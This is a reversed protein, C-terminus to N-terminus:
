NLRGFHLWWLNLIQQSKLQFDALQQTWSLALSEPSLETECKPPSHNVLNNFCKVRGCFSTSYLKWNWPIRKRKCSASATICFQVVKCLVVKGRRLWLAKIVLFIFWQVAGVRVVHGVNEDRNEDDCNWKDGEWDENNHKDSVLREEYTVTFTVKVLELM